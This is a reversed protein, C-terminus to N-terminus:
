MTHNCLHFSQYLIFERTHVTQASFSGYSSVFVLALNLFSDNKTLISLKFATMKDFIINPM